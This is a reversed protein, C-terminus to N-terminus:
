YYTVRVLVQTSYKGIKLEKGPDPMLLATYTHVAAAPNYGVLQGFNGVDARSPPAPAPLITVPLNANDADLIQMKLGNDVGDDNSLIISQGADDLRGAGQLVFQAALLMLFQTQANDPRAPATLSGISCSPNIRATVSFPHQQPLTGMYGATAMVRDFRVLNDVSVDGICQPTFQMRTPTNTIFPGPYGGAGYAPVLKFITGSPVPYRAPPPNDNLVTLKAVLNLTRPGSEGAYGPGVPHTESIPLGAVLNPAWPHAEDGNIVIELKLGARTLSQNLTSYDALAQLQVTAALPKGLRDYMSCDYNVVYTITRYIETGPPPLKGLTFNVSPILKIAVGSDARCGSPQAVQAKAPGALGIVAACLLILLGAMRRCHRAGPRASNRRTEAMTTTHNMSASWQGPQLTFDAGAVAGPSATLSTNGSTRQRRTGIGRAM